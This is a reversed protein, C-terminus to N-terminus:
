VLHCMWSLEKLIHDQPIFVEYLASELLMYLMVHIMNCQFYLLTANFCDMSLHLVYWILIFHTCFVDWTYVCIIWTYDCCKILSTNRISISSHESCEKYGPSITRYSLQVTHNVIYNLIPSPCWYMVMSPLRISYSHVDTTMVVENVLCIPTVENIFKYMLTTWKCMLTNKCSILMSEWIHAHYLQALNTNNLVLGASKKEHILTNMNGLTSLTMCVTKKANVSLRNDNFRLAEDNASELLKATADM